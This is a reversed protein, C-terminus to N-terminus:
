AIQHLPIAKVLMDAGMKAEATLGVMVPFIHVQKEGVIYTVDVAAEALKNVYSETEPFLVDWGASIIIVKTGAKRLVSHDGRKPSFGPNEIIATPIPITHAEGELAISPPVPVGAYIRMSLHAGDVTLLPDNPEFLLM